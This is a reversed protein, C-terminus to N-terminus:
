SWLGRKNARPARAAVITQLTAGANNQAALIAALTSGGNHDKLDEIVALLEETIKPTCEVMIMPLTYNDKDQATFIQAQTDKDLMKIVKLLKGSSRSAHRTLIMPLNGDDTNKALFVEGMDEIPFSWIIDLVKRVNKLSRKIALMPLTRGEVDQLKFMTALNMGTDCYKLNEIIGLIREGVKPIIKTALMSFNFGADGREMLIRTLVRASFHEIIDLFKEVNKANEFTMHLPFAYKGHDQVTFITELINEDLDKIVDWLREMAKETCVRQAMHMALTQGNADQAMFAKVLIDKDLGKMADWLTEVSGPIYRVVIMPLTLDGTLKATCMAMQEDPSLEKLSISLRKLVSKLSNNLKQNPTPLTAGHFISGIPVAKFGKAVYQNIKQLIVAMEDMDKKHEVGERILDLSLSEDAIVSALRDALSKGALAAEPAVLTPATPLISVPPVAVSQQRSTTSLTVADNEAATSSIKTLPNM